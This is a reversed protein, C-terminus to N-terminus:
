ILKYRMTALNWYQRLFAGAAVPTKHTSSCFLGPTKKAGGGGGGGSFWTTTTETPPKCEQSGRGISRSQSDEPIGKSEGVVPSWVVVKGNTSSIHILPGNPCFPMYANWWAGHSRPNIAWRVCLWRGLHCGSEGSTIFFWWLLCPFM